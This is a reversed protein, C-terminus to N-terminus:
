IPSTYGMVTLRGHRPPEPAAACGVPTGPHEPCADLIQRRVQQIAPNGDMRDLWRFAAETDISQGTQQFGQHLSSVTGEGVISAEAASLILREIPTKATRVADPGPSRNRYM